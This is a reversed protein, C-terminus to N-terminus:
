QPPGNNTTIGPAHSVAPHFTGTHLQLMCVLGMCPRSSATALFHSMCQLEPTPRKTALAALPVFVLKVKGGPQNGGERQNEQTLRMLMKNAALGQKPHDQVTHGTLQLRYTIQM